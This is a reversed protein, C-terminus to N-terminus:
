TRRHLRRHRQGNWARSPRFELRVARCTSRRALQRECTSGRRLYRVLIGFLRRGSPRSSPATFRDRLSHAAFEAIALVAVAAGQNSIVPPSSFLRRQRSRRRSITQVPSENLLRRVVGRGPCRERRERGSRGPTQSCEQFFTRRRSRASLSGATSGSPREASCLAREYREEAEVIDISIAM